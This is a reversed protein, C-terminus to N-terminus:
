DRTQQDLVRRRKSILVAGVIGVAAGFGATTIAPPLGLTAQMLGLLVGIVVAVALMIAVIRGMGTAESGTKKMSM